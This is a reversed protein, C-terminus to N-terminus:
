SRRRLLMGLLAGAGAAILVSKMPKERVFTEMRQEWKSLRTRGEQYYQTVKERAQQLGDEAVTKVASGMEGLDKRLHVASERLQERGSAMSNEKEHSSTPNTKANSM